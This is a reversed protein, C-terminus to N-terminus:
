ERNEGPSERLGNERVEVIWLKKGRAFTAGNTGKRGGKDKPRIVGVILAVAM